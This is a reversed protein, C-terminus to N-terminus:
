TLCCLTGLLASMILFIFIAAPPIQSRVLDCLYDKFNSLWSRSNEAPLACINVSDIIFNPYLSQNLNLSYDWIQCEVSRQPLGDQDQVRFASLPSVSSAVTELLLCTLSCLLFTISLLKLVEISEGTGLGSPTERPEKCSQKTQIPPTM